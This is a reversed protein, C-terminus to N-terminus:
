RVDFPTTKEICRKLEKSGRACGPTKTECSVATLFLDKGSNETQLKKIKVKRLLNVGLLFVVVCVASGTAINMIRITGEAM